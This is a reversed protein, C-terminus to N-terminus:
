HFMIVFIKVMGILVLEWQGGLDGIGEFGDVFFGGPFVVGDFDVRCQGAFCEVGEGICHGLLVNIKEEFITRFLFGFTSDM